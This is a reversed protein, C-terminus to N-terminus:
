RKLIKVSETTFDGSIKVIYVGSRLNSVDISNVQNNLQQQRVMKGEISYIILDMSPSSSQVTFETATVTPFVQITNGLFFNDNVQGQCDNEGRIVVENENSLDEIIITQSETTEFNFNSRKGNVSVEYNKSGSVSYSATRRARDLAIRKGSVNGLETVNVGNTQEFLIEPISLTVTYTGVPLNNIEFASTSPIDEYQTSLNAGEITIDLLYDELNTNIEIAGDASGACSPTLVYVQIANGAIRPCGNTNVPIGSNTEPCQDRDNPVGDNDDDLQSDSCGNSNVAEGIPTDPCQDLSNVIGDNDDDLQSDSCGNSNVAEGLPTDACQDLSNMVGDNDYDLQSDSCGSADVTEGTPTDPCVDELNNVGDGDDDITQDAACGNADVAAGATTNPCLDRDNTVGDNDDDLQNSACGEADVELGPDTNACKDFLDVVGDSDSDALDQGGGITELSTAYLESGSIDSSGVFFLKTEAATFSYYDFPLTENQIVFDIDVISASPDNNVLSIKNSLSNQEFLAVDKYCSLENIFNFGETSEELIIETGEPTGDTRWLEIISDFNNETGFYLYDGCPVLNDFRTGGLVPVNGSYVALTGEPTGDSKFITRKGPETEDGIATFYLEDKFITVHDMRQDAFRKLYQTGATTGDTVWLERNNNLTQPQGNDQIILLKNNVVKMHEIESFPYVLVPDSGNSNIRYLGLQSGNIGFFFLQDGFSILITRSNGAFVPRITSNLVERTGELTGDTAWLESGNGIQIYMYVEDNHVVFEEIFRSNLMSDGSGPNIDKLMFTGQPTGDSIWPEFGHVGDNASVVVKDGLGMLESEEDVFLQTREEEADPTLDVYKTGEITGDSTALGFRGFKNARFFVQDNAVTLLSPGAGFTRNLDYFISTGEDTGDSTWLEVGNRETDGTFFVSGNLVVMDNEFASSSIINVKESVLVTGQPSGDSKWLARSNSNSNGFFYINTGTEDFTANSIFTSNLFRTGSVSGDSVWLGQQSDYDSGYFFITSDSFAISEFSSVGWLGDPGIDLLITTGAETGDTTWFENGFAGDNAAFVMTGNVVGGYMTFSSSGGGAYIDKVLDTGDSTGDTKWLEYGLSGDDAFFYLNNQYVLYERSNRVSGGVGPNIDKVMITGEETGDTRWLEEGNEETFAKFYLHEGFVFYDLPTSSEVGENIDKFLVTGALTGDTVWLESGSNEEYLSFFVRGKFPVIGRVFGDQSFGLSRDTLKITGAETGDSVWLEDNMSNKEADFFVQDGVPVIKNIDGPNIQTTKAFLNTNEFTGDSFWLEDDDATFYFGNEVPTFREPYGDNSFKLELLTADLTQGILTHFILFVIFSLLLKATPKAMEPNKKSM